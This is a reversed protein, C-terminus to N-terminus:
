PAVGPLVGSLACPQHPRCQVALTIGRREAGAGGGAWAISQRGTVTVAYVYAETILGPDDALQETFAHPFHGGDITATARQRNDVLGAWAEPTPLQSAVSAWDAYAEEGTMWARVEATREAHTTTRTDYSWLVRTFAEAFAVPEIIEPAGRPPDQPEESNTADPSASPTQDQGGAGPRQPSDTEPVPGSDVVAALVWSAILALTLVVAIVAIRGTLTLRDGVGSPNHNDRTRMM